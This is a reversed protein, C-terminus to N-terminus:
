VNPLSGYRWPMKSFRECGRRLLPHQSHKLVRVKKVLYLVFANCDFFNYKQKGFQTSIVLCDHALPLNVWCLPTSAEQLCYYCQMACWRILIRKFIILILSWLHLLRCFHLFITFCSIRFFLAKIIQNCCTIFIHTVPYAVFHLFCFCLFSDLFVKWFWHNAIRWVISCSVSVLSLFCRWYSWLWVFMCRVFSWSRCWTHKM